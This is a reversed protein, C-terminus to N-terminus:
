GNNWLKKVYWDFNYGLVKDVPLYLNDPLPFLYREVDAKTYKSGKCIKLGDKSYTIYYGCGPLADIPIGEPFIAILTESLGTSEDTPVMAKMTMVGEIGTNELPKPKYKMYEFLKRVIAPALIHRIEDIAEEEVVPEDPESEFEEEEVSGDDIVKSIPLMHGFCPSLFLSGNRESLLLSSGEIVDPDVDDSIRLLFENYKSGTNHYQKGCAMQVSVYGLLYEIPYQGMPERRYIKEVIGRDHIMIYTEHSVEMSHGVGFRELESSIYNRLHWLTRPISIMVTGMKDQFAARLMGDVVHSGTISETEMPILELSSEPIECVGDGKADTEYLGYQSTAKLYATRRSDNIEYIEFPGCVLKDQLEIVAKGGKKMLRESHITGRFCFRDREEDDLPVFLM